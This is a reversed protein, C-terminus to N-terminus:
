APEHGYWRRARCGTTTLHEELCSPRVLPCANNDGREDHSKIDLKTKHQRLDRGHALESLLLLKTDRRAALFKPMLRM